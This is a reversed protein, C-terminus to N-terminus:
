GQTPTTLDPPPGGENTMGAKQERLEQRPTAPLPLPEPTTANAPQDALSELLNEVTKVDPLSLALRAARAVSAEDTVTGALPVANNEVNVWVDGASLKDDGALAENVQEAIEEPPTQQETMM